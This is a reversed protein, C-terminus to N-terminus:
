HFIVNQAFFTIKKTSFAAFSDEIPAQLRPSCDSAALHPFNHKELLVAIKPLFLRRRCAALRLPFKKTMKQRFFLAQPLPGAPPFPNKVWFTMKPLLFFLRRRCRALLLFITKTMKPRFFPAQPLGGASPFFMDIKKKKNRVQPIM